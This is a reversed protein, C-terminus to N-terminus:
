EKMCRVMKGYAYGDGGAYQGSGYHITTGGWWSYTTYEGYWLSRTDFVGMPMGTNMYGNTGVNTYRGTTPDRYGAYPYWMKDFNNLTTVFGFDDFETERNTFETIASANNDGEAYKYTGDYRWIYHFPTRYGPPCPDHMTKSFTQGPINPNAVAYGWLAANVYGDDDVFDSPFWESENSGGTYRSKYFVTPNAAVDPIHAQGSVDISKRYYWKGDEKKKYWWGSSKVTNGNSTNDTGLAAANENLISPPGILPDKRGWQYYFGMTADREASNKWTISNGSLDPAFTAGLFRDMKTYNGSLLEKPKDTLWIHWTWLIKKTSADERDYAALIINGKEFGSIQFSVFGDECLVGNDLLSLCINGPPDLQGETIENVPFDTTGKAFDGQWWLIDVHHPSITTSLGGNIEAPTMGGLPILSGVGNGRVTAKFKYYGDEHVMYCNSTQYASLDKVVAATNNSVCRVALGRTRNTYEDSLKAFDDHNFMFRYPSDNIKENEPTLNGAIDDADHRNILSSWVEVIKVDSKEATIKGDITSLHIHGAQYKGDKDIYGQYPYWITTWDTILKIGQDPPWNAQTMNHEFTDDLHEWTRAYPVHYGQPCPDYITKLPTEHEEERYGWLNNINSFNDRDVWDHYNGNVNTSADESTAGDQTNSFRGYFVLPNAVAVDPIVRTYSNSANITGDEGNNEDTIYFPTPRGWQYFLGNMTGTEGPAAATAGLNRDLAIYGKTYNQKQPKDTMWIHWTWLCVDNEDYVGLLINGEEKLTKDSRDIKNSVTKVNGDLRFLVKGEVIKNTELHFLNSSSPNGQQDLSWIDPNDCWIVKVSKPDLATNISSYPMAATSGNGKVTADFSYAFNASSVIYCNATGNASLNYFTGATEIDINVNNNDIWDQIQVEANVVGEDSFRLIIDYAYGPMFNRAIPVSFEGTTGNSGGSTKVVINLVRINPNEPDSLQAPAAIWEKIFTKHEFSDPIPVAESPTYSMTNTTGTYEIKHGTADKPLTITCNNPMYKLEVSTINGWNLSTSRYAYIKFLSLAHNFKMVEFGDSMTGEVVNSYMIDSDGEAPITFTVTTGQGSSSFSNGEPYWAAYAVKNDNGSFFQPADNNGNKFGSISRLNGDSYSPEGVTATLLPVQSNFYAPGESNTTRDLRVIGIGLSKNTASTIVGDGKTNQNVSLHVGMRAFLKVENAKFADPDEFRECGYFITCIIILIYLKISKM